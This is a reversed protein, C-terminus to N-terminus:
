ANMGRSFTLVGNEYEITLTDETVTFARATNLAALFQQEQAMVDEDICAMLTSIIESLILRGDEIQYSGGYSNCGASGGVSNDSNFELTVVSGEAVSTEMGPAGMSVLTWQTGALTIPEESPTGTAMEETPIAAETSTQPTIPLSVCASLLLALIGVMLGLKLATGKM